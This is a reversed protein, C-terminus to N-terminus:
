HFTNSSTEQKTPLCFQIHCMSKNVTSNKLTYKEAKHQLFEPQLLTFTPNAHRQRRFGQDYCPNIISSVPNVHWGSFRPLYSSVEKGGRQEVEVM